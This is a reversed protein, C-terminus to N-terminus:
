IKSPLVVIFSKQLTKSSSSSATKSSSFPSLSVNAPKIKSIEPFNGLLSSFIFKL